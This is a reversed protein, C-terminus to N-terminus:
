MMESEMLLEFYNRSSFRDVAAAFLCLLANYWKWICIWLSHAVCLEHKVVSDHSDDMVWCFREGVFLRVAADRQKADYISSFFICNGVRPIAGILRYLKFCTSLSFVMGQISRSDTYLFGGLRLFLLPFTDFLIFFQQRHPVAPNSVILFRNVVTTTFLFIRYPRLAPLLKEKLLILFVVPYM